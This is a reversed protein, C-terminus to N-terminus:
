LSNTCNRMKGSCRVCNSRPFRRCARSSSASLQVPVQPELAAAYFLLLSADAFAVRGVLPPDRVRLDSSLTWDGSFNELAELPFPKPDGNGVDHMAARHHLSSRFAAALPYVTIVQSAADCTVGPDLAEDRMEERCVNSRYWDCERQSKICFRKDFDCATRFIELM